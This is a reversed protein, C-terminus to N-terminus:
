RKKKVKIKCSKNKQNILLKKPIVHIYIPKDNTGGVSKMDAKYSKILDESVHTKGGTLGYTLSKYYRTNGKVHTTGYIVICGQSLTFFKKINGVIYNQRELAHAGHGGNLFSQKDAGRVQWENKKAANITKAAADLDITGGGKSIVKDYYKSFDENSSNNSDATEIMLYKTKNGKVKEVLIQGAIFGDAKGHPESIIVMGGLELATKLEDFFINNWKVDRTSGM